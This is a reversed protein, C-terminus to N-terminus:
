RFVLRQHRPRCIRRHIPPLSRCRGIRALEVIKVVGFQFVRSLCSDAEAVAEGSENPFTAIRKVAIRPMVGLAKMLIGKVRALGAATAEM